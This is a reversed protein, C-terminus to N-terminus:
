VYTRRIDPAIADAPLGAALGTLVLRLNLAEVRLAWLFATVPEPGFPIGRGGKVLDTTADDTLRELAVPAAPDSPDLHEVASLGLAVFSPRWDPREHGVLTLIDQKDVALGELAHAVRVHGWDNIRCRVLSLALTWKLRTDLWASVTPNDIQETTRHM